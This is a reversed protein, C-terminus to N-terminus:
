PSIRANRMVDSVESPMQKTGWASQLVAHMFEVKDGKRLATIIKDYGQEPHGRKLTYGTADLGESVTRYNRVGDSNFWTTHFFAGTTNLPNWKAALIGDGGGGEATEWLIISDIASQLVPLQLRRLLFVAWEDRTVVDSKSM